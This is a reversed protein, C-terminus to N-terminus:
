EEGDDSSNLMELFKNLNTEVLTVFGINGEEALSIKVKKRIDQPVGLGLYNYLLPSFYDGDQNDFNFIVVNFKEYNNYKLTDDGSSFSDDKIKIGNDIFWQVVMQNYEYEQVKSYDVAVGVQAM